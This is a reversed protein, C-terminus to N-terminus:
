SLLPDFIENVRAFYERKGFEKPVIPGPSRRKLICESVQEFDLLDVQCSRSDVFEEIFGHQSMWGRKPAKYIPNVLICGAEIADLGSPGLLPDGLGLMHTAGVLLAKWEEPKLHGHTVVGDPLAKNAPAPLTSHLVVNELENLKRLLTLVSPTYYKPDKGWIVVVNNSNNANEGGGRNNVRSIVEDKYFGLFRGVGDGGRQNRSRPYATLM